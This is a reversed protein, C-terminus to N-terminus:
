VYAPLAARAAADGARHAPVEARALLAAARERAEALIARVDDASTRVFAGDRVLPEGDVLVNRAGCGAASQVLAAVPDHYPAVGPRELDFIAVDARKGPELSGIRDDLGLVHAADVTAMALADLPTLALPDLHLQNQQVIAVKMQEVMDVSADVMPGDSGLAVPVGAERMRRIPAVGAGRAAESTPTHAVGAGSAALLELDRDRLHVAHALVWREDLVGLDHLFAVDTHGTELVFRLYGGERSMTGSAVHDSIRLDLERALAHGALVLEESCTGAAVWHATTEITLGLAIRGDGAGDWRAHLERARGLQEDLRQPRLEKCFLQRMGSELVPQLTAEVWAEDTATVSHNLCTTTGGALMELCALRSAAQADAATMAAGAPLLLNGIWQELRMGGGLGRFLGYWHHQHANVLGPVVICGRADIREEAAAAEAALAPDLAAREGAFAIAGDRILVCGNDHRSRAPDMPVVCGGDILLTRARAASRPM